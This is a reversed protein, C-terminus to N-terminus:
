NKKLWEIEKDLRDPFKFKPSFGLFRKAKGIDLIIDLPKEKTKSFDIKLRPNIKKVITEAVKEIPIGVGTGINFFGTQNKVLSIYIAEVADDVCLYDRKQQGGYVKLKKGSLASKIFNPIARDILDGPGYLTALRLISTPLGNKKSYISCLIEAALKSAAYYSAPKTPDSEKIPRKLDQLGYVEATSVHTFGSVIKGFVELVNITGLTNVKFMEVPTDEDLSKPVFAALHVVHDVKGIKIKVTELSSRNLINVNYYKLKESSILKKSQHNKDGVIVALHLGKRNLKKILIKGLFGTGGTLLIKM